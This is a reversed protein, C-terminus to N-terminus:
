DWFVFPAIFISWCCFTQRAHVLGKNWDYAHIYSFCRMPIPILVTWLKLFGSLPPPDVIFRGRGWPYLLISHMKWVETMLSCFQETNMNKYDTKRKRRRSGLAKPISHRVTPPCPIRVSHLPPQFSSACMSSQRPSEWACPHDTTQFILELCCPPLYADTTM